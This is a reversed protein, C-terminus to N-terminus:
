ITEVDVPQQVMPSYHIQYSKCEFGEALLESDLKARDLMLVHSFVQGSEGRMSWVESSISRYQEIMSMGRNNFSNTLPSLYVVDVNKIKLNCLQQLHTVVGVLQVAKRDALIAYNTHKVSAVVSDIPIRESSVTM